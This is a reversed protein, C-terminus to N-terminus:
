GLEMMGGLASACSGLLLMALAACAACVAFLMEVTQAYRGALGALRPGAVPELIAACLKISVLRAGISLMPGLCAHAVLLVGTVGVASRLLGASIGVAGAAGSLEGGIIPVVNEVIDQAVRLAATDKAASLGGNMAMVATFGAMSLGMLWHIASRSFDFLRGLSLRPSLHEATGLLTCVGCVPLCVDKLVRDILSIAQASMSGLVAAGFTRGTLSLAAATVPTMADVAKTLTDIMDGAAHWAQTFEGTLVGACCLVALLEPAALRSGDAGALLRLAALLLVPAALRLALVSLQEKISDAARSLLGGLDDMSLEMDGTILRRLAEAPDFGVVNRGFDTITDIGTLELVRDTEECFAVSPVM